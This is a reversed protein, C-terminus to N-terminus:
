WGQRYKARRAKIRAKGNLSRDRPEKDAAKVSQGRVYQSQGDGRKFLHRKSFTILELTKGSAM